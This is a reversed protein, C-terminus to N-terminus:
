DSCTCTKKEKCKAHRNAISPRHMDVFTEADSSLRFNILRANSTPQTTVTKTKKKEREEREGCADERVDRAHQRGDDLVVLHPGPHRLGELAFVELVVDLLVEHLVDLFSILHQFHNEHKPPPHPPPRPIAM